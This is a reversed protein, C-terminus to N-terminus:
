TLFGGLGKERQQYIFDRQMAQMQNFKQSTNDRSFKKLEERVDAQQKQALDSPFPLSKSSKSELFPILDVLQRDDRDGTWEPIRITNDKHIPANDDTFDIYVVDKIPRGLYSFDKIYRRGKLITSERGLRGAIMRQQPDLAEAIEHVHGSEQDGFLVIEYSRSM